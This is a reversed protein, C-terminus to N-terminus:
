TMQAPELVSWPAYSGTDAGASPLTGISVWGISSSNESYPKMRRGSAYMPGSPLGWTAM